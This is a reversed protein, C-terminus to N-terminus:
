PAPSEQREMSQVPHIQSKRGTARMIGPLKLNQVGHPGKAEAYLTQPKSGLMSRRSNPADREEVPSFNDKAPPTVIVRTPSSRGIFSGGLGRGPAQRLFDPIGATGHPKKNSVWSPSLHSPRPSRNSSPTSRGSAPSHSQPTVVPELIRRTRPPKKKPPKPFVGFNAYAPRQRTAFLLEDPSSIFSAATMSISPRGSSSFSAEPYSRMEAFVSRRKAAMVIRSGRSEVESPSPRGLPGVKSFSCSSAFSDDNRSLVSGKQSLSMERTADSGHVMAQIQQSLTFPNIGDQVMMREFISLPDWWSATWTSLASALVVTSVLRLDYTDSGTTAFEVAVCAATLPLRMNSAFLAAMGMVAGANRLAPHFFDFLYGFCRGLSAGIVLSPMLIGGAGGTSFSMTFSFLRGVSLVLMAFVVEKSVGSGSARCTSELQATADLQGWGWSSDCGTLAYMLGGVSGTCLGAIGAAFVEVTMVQSEQCLRRLYLVLQMQLPSFTGLTIGITSAQLLWPWIDTSGVASGTSASSSLTISMSGSSTWPALAVRALTASLSSMLVLATVSGTQRADVYEEIAFSIGALPSGFAASLGAACGLVVAQPLGENTFLHNEACSFHEVVRRAVHHVGSAVCACVHLTPAEIGLANGSGVYLASLLFRGVGVRLPVPSGVALCIKTALTGGGVCEPAVLRSVWAVFVASVTTGLAMYTAYGVHYLVEANEGSGASLGGLSGALFRLLVAVKSTADHLLVTTVGVLTGLILSFFLLPILGRASEETLPEEGVKEPAFTECSPCESFADQSVTSFDVHPVNLVAVASLNSIVEPELVVVSSRASQKGPKDDEVKLFRAEKNVAKLGAQMLNATESNRAEPETRTRRGSRRVTCRSPVSSSHGLDSTEPASVDCSSGGSVIASRRPPDTFTRRLNRKNSPTALSVLSPVPSVERDLGEAVAGLDRRSTRIADFTVSAKELSSQFARKEFSQSSRREATRRELNQFPKEELSQSPRRELQALAQTRNIAASSLEPATGLPNEEHDQCVKCESVDSLLGASHKEETTCSSEM